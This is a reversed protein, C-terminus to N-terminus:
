SGTMKKCVPPKGANNAKSLNNYLRPTQQLALPKGFVLVIFRIYVEPTEVDQAFGVRQYVFLM